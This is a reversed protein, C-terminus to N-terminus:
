SWKLMLLTLLKDEVLFRTMAYHCDVTEEAYKWMHPPQELIWAEVSPSADITIYQDGYLLTENQNEVILYPKFWVKGSEVKFPSAPDGPKTFKEVAQEQIKGGFMGLLKNITDLM